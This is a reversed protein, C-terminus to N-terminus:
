ALGVDPMVNGGVNRADNNAISGFIQRAETKGSRTEEERAEAREEM